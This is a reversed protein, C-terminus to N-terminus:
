SNGWVAQWRGLKFPLWTDSAQDWSCGYYKGTHSTLSCLKVGVFYALQYLKYLEGENYFMRFHLYNVSYLSLLPFVKLLLLFNPAGPSGQQRGRPEPHVHPLVWKEGM